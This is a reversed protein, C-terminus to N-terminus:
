RNNLLAEAEQQALATAEQPSYEGRLMDHFVTGMIEALQASQPITPRMWDQLQSVNDLRAILPFTAYRETLADNQLLSYRTPGSNGSEALLVQIDASTLWALFDWALAARDGINAPIGLSWTGLPTVPDAGPAHPAAAYGVSGRVQSTPLEEVLFSRAAWGYTMVCGGQSFRLVRQDWAMTLIDPPSWALLHLAYEAAAVGAPTDLTPRGDADLLPQGFAAYLHSMTQSLAEGRQANWCIGYQNRAPDTFQEAVALLAATTRPPDSGAAEFLDARYWLLEPHPQVPLGLQQGEYASAEYAPRLFDDVDLAPSQAIFPDLPLLVNHVAFEGIWIVDFSIIDYQSTLDRANLLALRRVNNYGAVEIEMRAGSRAELESQAEIMAMTFPDGVLLLRITEGAFPPSLEQRAAAPNLGIILLCSLVLAYCITVKRDKHQM